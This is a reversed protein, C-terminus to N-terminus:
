LPYPPKAQVLGLMVFTHLASEACCVLSFENFAVVSM